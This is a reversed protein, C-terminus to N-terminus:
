ISLMIEEEAAVHLLSIFIDLPEESNFYNKVEQFALRKPAPLSLDHVREKIMRKMEKIPLAAEKFKQRSQKCISTM